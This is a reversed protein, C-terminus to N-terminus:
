RSTCGNTRATHICSREACGCLIQEAHACFSCCLFRRPLASSLSSSLHSSYQKKHMWRRFRIGILYRTPQRINAIFSLFYYEKNDSHRWLHCRTKNSFADAYSKTSM